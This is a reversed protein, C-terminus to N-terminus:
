CRWALSNSRRGVRRVDEWRKLRDRPGEEFYGAGAEEGGANPVSRSRVQVVHRDM